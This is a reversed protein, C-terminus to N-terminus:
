GSRHGGRLDAQHRHRQTEPFRITSCAWRSAPPVRDSPAGRREAGQVRHRRLHGRHERPLDGHQRGAAGQGALARGDFWRVPRVCAYLDLKQRLAVNLSRFGGGVPTTLPGKIAVLHHAIAALTDDPLWSDLQNKAKEGALVELWAVQASAATPRKCRPTSCTSRPAGSTPAPATARSSRFSRAPRPGPLRGDACPSPRAPPTRSAPPARCPAPM